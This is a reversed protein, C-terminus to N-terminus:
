PLLRGEKPPIGSCAGLIRCPWADLLVCSDCSSDGASLESGFCESGSELETSEEVASVTHSSSSSSLDLILFSSSVPFSGGVEPAAMDPSDLSRGLVAVVAGVVMSEEGFCSRLGSASLVGGGLAPVLATPPGFTPLM